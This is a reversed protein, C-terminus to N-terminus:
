LIGCLLSLLKMQFLSNGVADAYCRASAGLPHIRRMQVQCCTSHSCFCTRSIAVCDFNMVELSRGHVSLCLFMRVLRLGLYPAL